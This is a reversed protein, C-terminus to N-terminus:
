PKATLSEDREGPAKGRSAIMSAKPPPLTASRGLLSVKRDIRARDSSRFPGFRPPAKRSVKPKQWPCAAGRRRVAITADVSGTPSSCTSMSTTTITATAARGSCPISSAAPAPSCRRCSRGNGRPGARPPTRQPDTASTVVVWRILGSRAVLPCQASSGCSALKASM